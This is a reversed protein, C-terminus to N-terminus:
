ISVRVLYSVLNKELEILVAMVFVTPATVPVTEEMELIKTNQVCLAAPAVLAAPNEEVEMMLLHPVLYREVKILVAMVFVTPAPVPVTEEM